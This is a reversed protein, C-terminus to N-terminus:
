QLLNGIRNESYVLYISNERRALDVVNEMLDERQVEKLKESSEKKHKENEKPFQNIKELLAKNEKM